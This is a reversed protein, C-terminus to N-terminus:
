QMQRLRQEVFALLEPGLNDSAHARRLAEQADALRGAAQLSIGLGMWWTGSQPALRLASQYFSVAQAHQGQRALLAAMTAHYAPNSSAAPLTSRLTEIAAAEDGRDAQLRALITAFGAHDPARALRESLIREVEAPRKVKLLAGALALRTSDNGPDLALAQAYADIAPAVAGQNFLDTARRFENEARQQPSTQKMAASVVANGSAAEADRLIPQVRGGAEAVPAAVAPIPAAPASRAAGANTAPAAPAVAASALARERLTLERSTALALGRVQTAVISPALPRPAPAAIPQPIPAAQSAALPQSADVPPPPTAVRSVQPAAAAGAPASAAPPLLRQWPAVASVLLVVGAVAVAFGIRRRKGSGPLARVYRYTGTMGIAVHRRDLDQLMANIVSM